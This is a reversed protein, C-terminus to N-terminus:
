GNKMIIFEKIYPFESKMIDFFNEMVAHDYCNGKRSMSQIIGREKLAHRYQKM